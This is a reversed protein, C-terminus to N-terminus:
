RENITFDGIKGDSYFRRITPGEVYLTEAILEAPWETPIGAAENVRPLSEIWTQDVQHGCKALVTTLDECLTETRGVFDVHSRGPPGIYWEYMRTVYGPEERLVNEMFEPFSDARCTHLPRWPHWNFEPDFERWRQASWYRFCSEYWTLPFRVFTFSFSYDNDAYDHRLGHRSTMSATAYSNPDRLGLKALVHEVFTGGTRPIHLFLVRGDKGEFHCSV